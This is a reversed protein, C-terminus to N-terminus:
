RGWRRRETRTTTENEVVNISFFDVKVDLSTHTPYGGMAVAM